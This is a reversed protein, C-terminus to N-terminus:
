WANFSSAFHCFCCLIKQWSSFFSLPWGVCFHACNCDLSDSFQISISHGFEKYKKDMLWFQDFWLSGINLVCIIVCPPFATAFYTKVGVRFDAKRSANLADNLAQTMKLALWFSCFFIILEQNIELNTQKFFRIIVFSNSFFQTM